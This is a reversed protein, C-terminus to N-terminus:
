SGPYVPGPDDHSPKMSAEVVLGHLMHHTEVLYDDHIKQLIESLPKKLAWIQVIGSQGDRNADPLVQKFGDLAQTLHVSAQSLLEAGVGADSGQFIQRQYMDLCYSSDELACVLSGVFESAEQGGAEFFQDAYGRLDEIARRMDPQLTYCLLNYPESLPTPFRVPDFMPTDLSVEEADIDPYLLSALPDDQFLKTQANFDVKIVMGGGAPVDSRVVGADASRQWGFHLIEASTRHPCHTLHAEAFFATFLQTREEQNALSKSEVIVDCLDRMRDRVFALSDSLSLYVDGQMGSLVTSLNELCGINRELLAEDIKDSLLM